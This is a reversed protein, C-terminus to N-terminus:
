ISSSKVSWQINGGGFSMYLCDLKQQFLPNVFVIKAPVGAVFSHCCLYEFAQLQHCFISIPININQYFHNAHRQSMCYFFVIFVTGYKISHPLCVLVKCGSVRVESAAYWPMCCQKLNVGLTGSNGSKIIIVIHTNRQHNGDLLM